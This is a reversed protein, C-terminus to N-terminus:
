EHSTAPELVDYFAFFRTRCDAAVGQTTTTRSTFDQMALPGLAVATKPNTATDSGRCPQTHCVSQVNAALKCSTAIRWARRPSSGPGSAGKPRTWPPM